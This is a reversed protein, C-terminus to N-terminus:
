DIWKPKRERKGFVMEFIVMQDKDTAIKDFHVTPSLEAHKQILGEQGMKQAFIAQYGFRCVQRNIMEVFGADLLDAHGLGEAVYRELISTHGYILMSSSIPFLLVIPGDPKLVYPKLNLEPISPDFWAVPNDSTLFPIATKNHLVGIGIRSFIQGIGGIIHPMAHISLHPNIPAEIHDLIDEFGKPKPPLKGEADLRRAIVKTREGEIKEVVDRCAPVRVRQLAIFQFIDELSDNVDEQRQLRDIIGPWKEETKSFFEELTNHDTGGEPTPQSYYYNQLAANEVSLAIARSPENKRYVLLKNTNDCFSRLYAKPVYHHRKKDMFSLRGRLDFFCL